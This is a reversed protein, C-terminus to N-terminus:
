QGGVRVARFNIKECRVSGSGGSWSIQLKVADGADAKIIGAISSGGGNAMTNRENAFSNNADDLLVLKTILNANDVGWECSGTVVYVGAKPLTIELVKPTSTSVSAETTSDVLLDGINDVKGDIDGIKEATFGLMSDITNEDM